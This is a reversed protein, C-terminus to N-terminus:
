MEDFDVTTNVQNDMQMELVAGYQLGNAARGDVFVNLEMDNRFDNKRRAQGHAAGLRTARDNDDQINAASFEFYGGLRVTLGGVGALGPAPAATLTSGQTGSGPSIGQAFAAPAAIALGVGATTGLLIKRM